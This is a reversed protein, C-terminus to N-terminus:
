NPLISISRVGVGVRELEAKSRKLFDSATQAAEYPSVPVHLVFTATDLDIQTVVVQVQRDRGSQKPILGGSISKLREELAEIGLSSGLVFQLRLVRVESSSYNVILHDLLKRNPVIVYTGEQTRLITRGASIEMVMGAVGADKGDNRIEILDGVRYSRSGLLRFGSFTDAIFGVGLGVTVILGIVESALGLAALALAFSVVIIGLWVLNIRFATTVGSRGFGLHRSRARWLWGLIWRVATALVLGAILLLFASVGRWANNALWAQAHQVVTNVIMAVM